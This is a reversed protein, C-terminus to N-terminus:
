KKLSKNDLEVPSQVASIALKPVSNNSSAKMMFLTTAFTIVDGHLVALIFFLHIEKINFNTVWKANTDKCGGTSCVGCTEACQERM